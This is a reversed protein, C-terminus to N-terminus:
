IGSVSKSSILQESIKRAEGIIESPYDNLELIRIANTTKLQGAKLKYDFYIKENEVMETFHYLNYSSALYDTLELDHTSVFVINKNKDLYSLVSKGAAIREITNTGKFMEDLLFLNQFGSRSENLLDKITLVEDFYYSKDSMLDDSIRIASHIKLRPLVFQKAFCTNLTLSMIANIGITRIFTTKGSMNSGTLLVSKQENEITNAVFNAILPHYIENASLEKKQDTITPIAYYKLERRLSDISIAVDIEGIFKFLRHMEERKSDLRKLVNFFVIPEILFLAKIVDILGEVAQGVDTQVQAELKFVSLQFGINDIAKVSKSLDEKQDTLKGSKLLEKAVQKLILLQLISGSYHTFKQRNWYHILYNTGLVALLLLIFWPYFVSLIISFVSTVSLIPVVWFWSPKQFHEELFLSSVYYAENQNLRNLQMLVSEKLLTNEKFLQILNEFRICNKNNKPLTRIVHYLYQQGVKSTTRDIYMFVEDLDMDQSTKDSIVQHADDKNSKLFYQNISNFYFSEKKHKFYNALFAAQKKKTSKFM